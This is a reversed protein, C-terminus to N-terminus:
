SCWFKAHQENITFTGDKHLDKQNKVFTKMMNLLIGIDQNNCSLIYDRMYNEKWMFDMRGQKKSPDKHIVDLLHTRENKCLKSMEHMKKVHYYLNKQLPYEQKFEFVNQKM